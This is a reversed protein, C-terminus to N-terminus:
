MEGKHLNTYKEESSNESGSSVIREDFDVNKSVTEWNTKNQIFIRYSGGLSYGILVGTTVRNSFKGSRKVKPVHVYTKTGYKRLTSIDAKKSSFKELLTMGIDICSSSNIRNRLFNATM